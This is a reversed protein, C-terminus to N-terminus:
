KISKAPLATSICHRAKLGPGVMVGPISLMLGPTIPVPTPRIPRRSLRANGKHHRSSAKALLFLKNWLPLALQM